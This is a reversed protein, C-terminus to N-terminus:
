FKQTNNFFTYHADSLLLYNFIILIKSLNSIPELRKLIDRLEAIFVSISNKFYHLLLSTLDSHPSNSCLSFSDNASIRSWPTIWEIVLGRQQKRQWQQWLKILFCVKIFDLMYILGITINRCRRNVNVPTIKVQHWRILSLLFIDKQLYFFIFM